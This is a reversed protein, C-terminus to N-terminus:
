SLQESDSLQDTQEANNRWHQGPIPVNVNVQIAMPQKSLDEGKYLQHLKLLKEIADMSDKPTVKYTKIKRGESFGVGYEIKLLSRQQPSLELLKGLDIVPEGNADIESCLLPDLFAIDYLHDFLEKNKEEQRQVHKASLCQLRAIIDPRKLIKSGIVAASTKKGDKFAALYADGANFTELYSQCFMEDRANILPKSYDILGNPSKTPLKQHM